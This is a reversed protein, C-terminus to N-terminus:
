NGCDAIYVNGSNDLRMGGFSNIEAASAPGGDGSYGNIGNGAFTNIIGSTNIIRVRDNSVDGVYINGSNNDYAVYEPNYFSAATAAGGDGGYMAQGTGAITTIIGSADVKRIRENECDAIYMDGSNDFAVCTPFGLEAATAQGGDGSWGATGCGAITYIYGTNDVYRIRDNGADAIYLNGHSTISWPDTAFEAATAPGGDGAYGYIGNGAYNSIIGSSNVKRVTLGQLDLIYYNGSFDVAISYIYEFEAATAPGGNGAIGVGGDGAITTIMQSRAGFSIAVFLFLAYYKNM